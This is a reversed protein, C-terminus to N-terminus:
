AVIWAPEPSFASIRNDSQQCSSYPHATVSQSAAIEGHQWPNPIFTRGFESGHAKHITIAYALELVPAGDDRGM